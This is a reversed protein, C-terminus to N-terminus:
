LLEGVPSWDNPGMLSRRGGVRESGRDEYDHLEAVVSGSGGYGVADTTLRLTWLGRASQPLSMGDVLELLQVRHATCPGRPEM